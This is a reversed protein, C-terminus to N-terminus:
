KTRDSFSRTSSASAVSGPIDLHHHIPKKKKKTGGNSKISASSSSVMTNQPQSAISLESLKRAPVSPGADSSPAAEPSGSTDKEAGCSKAENLPGEDSKEAEPVREEEPAQDETFEPASTEQKEGAEKDETIEPASMEQKEEAEKDETIKPPIEEQKEEAEKDEMVKSPVKVAVVTKLSPSQAIDVMSRPKPKAKAKMNLFPNSTHQPLDTGEITIPEQDNIFFDPNSNSNSNTNSNMASDSSSKRIEPPKFIHEDTDDVCVEISQFWPDNYLDDMSYRTDPNPDALRWAVRSADTSKFSRALSYESGPGARHYGKDRFHASQHNIFNEYSIEFDRFRPDTNCSEFFPLINNVLAILILGLAYSDMKLPNYPKQIREPFHKKADFVMVEPPTYPPSGIMGECQKVPSDFNQPEVHYWDSIGFDTLKCIGDKSILVNEPKLDRHAVGQDHCFKIAQAIQKFICFKDSLPVAKWGSREMLQFLDKVCIEMVFGWGRTTYTTTPVKVLYYTNCVHISHSLHKAIIFEKSCRKYFKEASEDYIMNLKKLAFVDKQRYCSRVKRVESSGGTGLTQNDSDFVFNDTLHISTEKMEQPLFDNPNAIPLPLLRIKSNGDHMYFSIDNNENGSSGGYATGPRSPVVNGNIGYPNYIINENNLFHHNAFSGSPKRNISHHTGAGGNRRPTAIGTGTGIVDAAQTHAFPNTNHAVMNHISASSRASTVGQVNGSSKNRQFLSSSRQRNGPSTSQPRASSNHHTAHTKKSGHLPATSEIKDSDNAHSKSSLIKKGLMKIASMSGVHHLTHDRPSSHSDKGM